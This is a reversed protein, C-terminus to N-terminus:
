AGSLAVNAQAHSQKGIWQLAPPLGDRYGVQPCYDLEKRARALDVFRSTGLFLLESRSLPAPLPGGLIRGLLEFAVCGLYPLFYPLRMSPARCELLEALYDLFDGLTTRSGDTIHYVRGAAARTQGGLLLARVMDSIYVLPLVNHRSGIYIVKNGRMAEVLRPLNRRDGPGYIFGTRLITVEVPHRASYDLALKEADIKIDIEPDGSRRRPLEESPAEFNCLGLVSLGSLLVLRGGGNRRLGELVQQLGILGTEYIETKRCHDGTAAACHYVVAVGQTAARVVEPDRVDGVVVDIGRQRLDVAQEPRRVLARVSIGEALLHDVLHSGIFGGAGTVLSAAGAATLSAPNSPNLGVV